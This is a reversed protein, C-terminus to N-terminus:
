RACLSVEYQKAEEETIVEDRIAKGLLNLLKTQKERFWAKYQPNYTRLGKTPRFWEPHDIQRQKMDFFWKKYLECDRKASLLEDIRAKKGKRREGKKLSGRKTGRPEGAREIKIQKPTTWNDQNGM